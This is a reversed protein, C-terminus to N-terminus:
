KRRVAGFTLALGLALPIFFGPEPTYEFNLTTSGGSPFGVQFDVPDPSLSYTITGLPIVTHPVYTICGGVESACTPGNMGVIYEINVDTYYAACPQPLPVTNPPTGQSCSLPAELTTLIEGTVNGAPGGVYIRPAVGDNAQSFALPSIYGEVAIMNGTSATCTRPDGSNCKAGFIEYYGPATISGTGNNGTLNVIDAKLQGTALVAIAAVLLWVGRAPFMRFSVAGM